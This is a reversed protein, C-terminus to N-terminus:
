DIEERLVKKLSKILNGTIDVHEDFTQIVKNYHEKLQRKVDSDTVSDIVNRLGEAQEYLRRLSRVNKNIDEQLTDISSM